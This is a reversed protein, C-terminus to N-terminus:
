APEGEGAGGGTVGALRVPGELREALLKYTPFDLAETPVTVQALAAALAQHDANADLLWPAYIAEPV